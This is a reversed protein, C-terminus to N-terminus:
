SRMLCVKRHEVSTVVLAVYLCKDLSVTIAASVPKDNVLVICGIATNLDNVFAHNEMVNEAISTDTNRAQSNLLLIDYIDQHSSAFKVTVNPLPRVPPLLEITQLCKLKVSHLFEASSCIEQLRERVHLPVLEAEISLIWPFNPQIQKMYMQINELRQRLDLEDTVAVSFFLGNLIRWRSQTWYVDVGCDMQDILGQKANQACHYLFSKWQSNISLNM